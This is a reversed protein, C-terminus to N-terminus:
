PERDHGQPPLFVPTMVGPERAWSRHRVIRDTRHCQSHRTPTQHTDYCVINRSNTGLIQALRHQPYPFQRRVGADVRPMRRAFQAAIEFRRLITKNWFLLPRKELLELSKAPRQCRPTGPASSAQFTQPLGVMCHARRRYCFAAKRLAGPIKGVHSDFQSLDAQDSIVKSNSFLAARSSDLNRSRFGTKASGDLRHGRITASWSARRYRRQLSRARVVSRRPSAWTCYVRQTADRGEQLASPCLGTGTIGKIRHSSNAGPNPCVADFRETAEDFVKKALRFDERLTDFIRSHEADPM